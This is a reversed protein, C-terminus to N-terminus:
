KKANKLNLIEFNDESNWFRGGITFWSFYIFFACKEEVDFIYVDTVNENIKPVERTPPLDFM